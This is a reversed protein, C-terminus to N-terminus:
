RELVALQKAAKRCIESVHDNFNLNFDINVGLLTVTNECKILTSGIQFQEIADQTKKGICIAQFKDPSAKMSNEGFRQILLTCEEILIETLINLDCHFHSITTDDAYNYVQTKKM